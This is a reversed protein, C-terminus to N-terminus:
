IETKMFSLRCKKCAIFQESEPGNVCSRLKKIKSNHWINYISDEYINGLSIEYGFFSCCPSINGDYNIFLRQYPEACISLVHSDIRYKKEIEIYKNTGVFPNSFPVSSVTDVKDQWFKKFDIWEKYNIKNKVFSVRVSPLTVKKSKKVELFNIINNLMIEYKGKKRIEEYTKKTNADISFIISTLGNDILEEAREKTLLMANTHLSIVLIGAQSAYRIFRYIDKQLLPENIGNLEVSYLNNKIGEDIIECYKKFEIKQRSKQEKRYSFSNCPCFECQLNCGKILEFNLHLPYNPIETFRGAKEWKKRYEIFNREIKKANFEKRLKKINKRSLKKYEKETPEKWKQFNPDKRIKLINPNYFEEFVTPTIIEFGFGWTKEGYKYLLRLTKYVDWDQKRSHLYVHENTFGKGFCHQSVKKQKLLEEPYFTYGDIGVVSIKSAGQIYSWFIAISGVTRMCGYMTEERHYIQCRKREKLDGLFSSSNWLNTKKRGRGRIESRKYRLYKKQYFKRINKKSYYEPFICISKKNVLNGFESWRDPDAWINYDVKLISSIHNCGITVCNKRKIFRLIKDKHKKLTPGAGIILIHKKRIQKM